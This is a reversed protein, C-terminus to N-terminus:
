TPPRAFLEAWAPGGAAERVDAPSRRLTADAVADVIDRQDTYHHSAGRFLGTRWAVLDGHAGGLYGWLGYAWEMDYIVPARGFSAARRVGCAFCGAVADHASEAAALVLRDEFRKALKLGYGGDPATLGMRRGAPPRQDLLDAPRDPAWSGPTALRESPRVRDPAQIPVHDPQTM